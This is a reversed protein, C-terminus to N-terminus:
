QADGAYIIRVKVPVCDGCALRVDEPRSRVSAPMLRGSRDLACWAEVPAPVGRWFQDRPAHTDPRDVM